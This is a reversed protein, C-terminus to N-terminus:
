AADASEGRMRALQQRFFGERTPPARYTRVHEALAAAAHRATIEDLASLLDGHTAAARRAALVDLNLASPPTGRARAQKVLDSFAGDAAKLAADVEHPTQAKTFGDLAGVVAAGGYDTVFLNVALTMDEREALMDAIIASGLLHPTLETGLEAMARKNLEDWIARAATATRRSPETRFDHICAVFTGPGEAFLEGLIASARERRAREAAAQADALLEAAAQRGGVSRADIRRTEAALAVAVAQQEAAAAAAREAAIPSTLAKKYRAAIDHLEARLENSANSAIPATSM